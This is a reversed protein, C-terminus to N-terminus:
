LEAFGVQEIAKIINRRLLPRMKTCFHTLSESNIENTLHLRAGVELLLLHKTSLKFVYTRNNISYINQLYANTILPSLENVISRIDLYTFRQKM